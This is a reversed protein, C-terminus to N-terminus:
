DVVLKYGAGAATQLLQPNAPDHEIKQRVRHV